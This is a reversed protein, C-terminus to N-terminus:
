WKSRKGSVFMWFVTTMIGYFMGPEPVARIDARQLSAAPGAPPVPTEIEWEVGDLAVVIEPQEGQRLAYPEYRYDIGDDLPIRLAYNVDDADYIGTYARTCEVTHFRAIVLAEGNTLAIGNGGSATGYYTVAPESLRASLMGACLLMFAPIWLVPQQMSFTKM